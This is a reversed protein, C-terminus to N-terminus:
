PRECGSRAARIENGGTGSTPTAGIGIAPADKDPGEVSSDTKFRLNREWFDRTKGDVTTVKFTDHCYTISKIRSSAEAARLNPVGRQMGGMQPQATRQDGASGAQTGNPQKLFAIIGPALM